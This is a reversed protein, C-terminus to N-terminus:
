IDLEKVKNAHLFIYKKREETNEGMLMNITQEALVADDRTIQIITRRDKNLTTERIEQWDMEGLGKFRGISMSKVSKNKEKFEALERDNNVYHTTKGITVRYLPPVGVFLYGLDIIEPYYRYFFTLLLTKI